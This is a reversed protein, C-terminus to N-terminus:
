GPFARALNKLQNIRQWTLRTRVREPTVKPRAIRMFAVWAERVELWALQTQKAGEATQSGASKGGPAAQIKRYLENLNGDAEAFDKSTAAPPGGGLFEKLNILVQQSLNEEDMVWFVLRGTGTADIEHEGRLKSFAEEKAEVRRFEAVAEPSWDAQLSAITKNRQAKKQSARHAACAGGMIYGSQGIDNTESECLDFTAGAELASRRDLLRPRVDVWPNQAAFCLAVEVSRPVGRGNAFIMTLVGPGYFPDAMGPRPHALEYLGCQLAAASSGGEYYLTAAHCNPLAEVELPGAQIAPLGCTSPAPQDGRAICPLFAVALAAAVIWAPRSDTPRTIM